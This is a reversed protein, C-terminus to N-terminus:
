YWNIVVIFFSHDNSIMRKLMHGKIDGAQKYRGNCCGRITASAIDTCREAVSISLYKEGTTLDIVHRGRTHAQHIKGCRPCGQGQKTRNKVIQRFGHWCVSCKWLAPKDNGDSVTVPDRPDSWEQVLQSWFHSLLVTCIIGTIGAM